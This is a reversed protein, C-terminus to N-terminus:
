YTWTLALTTIAAATPVLWIYSFTKTGYRLCCLLRKDFAWFWTM